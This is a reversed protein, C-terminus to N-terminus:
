DVNNKFSLAHASSHLARFCLSRNHMEVMGVPRAVTWPSTPARPCAQPLMAFHM